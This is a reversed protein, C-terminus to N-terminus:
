MRRKNRTSLKSNAVVNHKKQGSWHYFERTIENLAYWMSEQTDWNMGLDRSRSSSSSVCEVFQRPYVEFCKQSQDVSFFPDLQSYSRGKERRTTFIIIAKWRYLQFFSVVYLRSSFGRTSETQLYLSLYIISYLNM